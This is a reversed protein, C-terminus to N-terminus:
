FNWNANLFKTLLQFCVTMKDGELKIFIKDNNM